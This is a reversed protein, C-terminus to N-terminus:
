LAFEESLAAEATLVEGDTLYRPIFMFWAVEGNWWNNPGRFLYTTGTTVGVTNTATNHREVEALRLNWLSAKSRMVGIHYNSMTPIWPGTVTKRVTSCFDEYINSDALPFHNDLADTGFSGFLAGGNLGATGILKGVYIVTAETVGTLMGTPFTMADSTAAGRGRVAQRGNVANHILIPTGGVSTLDNNNSTKDAWGGLTENDAGVIDEADGWVLAESYFSPEGSGAAPRARLGLGIDLM